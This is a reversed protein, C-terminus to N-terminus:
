RELVLAGCYASTTFVFGWIMFSSVMASQFYAYNQNGKDSLIVAVLIVGFSMFMTPMFISVGVSMSRMTTKIKRKFVAKFQSFFSYSSEINPLDLDPIDPM